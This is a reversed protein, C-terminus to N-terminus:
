PLVLLDPVTCDWGWGPVPLVRFMWPQPLTAACEVKMLLTDNRKSRIFSCGPPEINGRQPLRTKRTPVHRMDDDTMTHRIFLFIPSRVCGEAGLPDPTPIRCGLLSSGKALKADTLSTGVSDM